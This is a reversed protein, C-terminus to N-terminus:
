FFSSDLLQGLLAFIIPLGKLELRSHSLPLRDALLWGDFWRWRRARAWASSESPMSLPLKSPESSESTVALPVASPVALPVSSPKSSKSPVM